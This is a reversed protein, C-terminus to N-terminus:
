AHRRTQGDWEDLPACHWLWKREPPLDGLPARGNAWQLAAWPEADAPAWPFIRRLIRACVEAPPDFDFGLGAALDGGHVLVEDCGMAAFGSRDAIGFPHFGRQGPVAATVAAALLAGASRLCDLLVAPRVTPDMEAVEVGGTSCRALNAAYWNVCDVVHTLTRRCSWEITGARDDWRDESMAPAALADAVTAVAVLVDDATVLDATM